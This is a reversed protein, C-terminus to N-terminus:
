WHEQASGISRGLLIMMLFEREEKEKESSVISQAVIPQRNHDKSSNGHSCDVMVLPALKGKELAQSTVKVDETEYNPGSKGGRLIVHCADNGGTQVIASLGQKTVSLFHHGNSAAKIADMAVTIGGDTGNKFGVPCSLGSAL